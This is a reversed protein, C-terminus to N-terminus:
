KVSCELVVHSVHQLKQPWGNQRCEVKLESGHSTSSHSGSKKEFLTTPFTHMANMMTATLIPFRVRHSSTPLLNLYMEGPTYPAFGKTEDSFSRISGLIIMVTQATQAICHHFIFVM